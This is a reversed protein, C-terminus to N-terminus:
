PRGGLSRFLLLRAKEWRRQVTRESLGQLAAIEAVGFGCFFKLDVVTALEPEIGALEDLAAGIDALQQPQAIQDAIHTDLSTFHLDGGRKLAGRARVQDIVLARMARGAYALFRARDPFVLSERTVMDLYAEHLLTTPSAGLDSGLRAVERRAIRHLEDYLKAFLADNGDVPAAAPSAADAATETFVPDRNMGSRSRDFPERVCEM